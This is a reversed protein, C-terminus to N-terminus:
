PPLPTTGAGACVKVSEPLDLIKAMDRKLTGVVASSEYVHAMQDERLGCLALM